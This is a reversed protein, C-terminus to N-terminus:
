RLCRDAPYLFYNANRLFNGAKSCNITLGTISLEWPFASASPARSKRSGALVPRRKGRAAAARLVRSFGGAGGSRAPSQSGAGKLLSALVSHKLSYLGSPVTTHLLPASLSKGWLGLCFTTCCTIPCVSAVRPAPVIGLSPPFNVNSRALKAQSCQLSIPAKAKTWRRREREKLCLTSQLTSLINLLHGATSCALSICPCLRPQVGASTKPM